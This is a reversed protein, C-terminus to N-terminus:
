KKGINGLITVRIIDRRRTRTGCVNTNKLVFIRRGFNQQVKKLVIEKM